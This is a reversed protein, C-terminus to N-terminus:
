AVIVSKTAAQTLEKGTHPDGSCYASNVKSAMSSVAEVPARSYLVEIFQFCCLKSVLQAQLASEPGKCPSSFSTVARVYACVCLVCVSVRVIREEISRMMDSIKSSFFELLIAQSCEMMLPVCVREGVSRCVSVSSSTDFMEYAVHLAQVGDM